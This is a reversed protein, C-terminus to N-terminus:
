SQKRRMSLSPRISAFPTITSRARAAPGLAKSMGARKGIVLGQPRTKIKYLRGCKPDAGKLLYLTAGMPDYASQVLIPRQGETFPSALRTLWSGLKSGFETRLPPPIHLLWHINPHGKTGEIAWVYLAPLWEPKSRSTARDRLWKTFHRDRLQEFMKSIEHEECQTHGINLTVTTNLPRGIRAAYQTARQINLVQRHDIHLSQRAM